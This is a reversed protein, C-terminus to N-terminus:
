LEPNHAAVSLFHTIINDASDILEAIQPKHYIDRGYDTTNQSVIQLEKVGMGALTRCEDVITEIPESKLPGNLVPKSTSLYAQPM